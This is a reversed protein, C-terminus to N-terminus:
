PVGTSPPQCGLALGDDDGPYRLGYECAKLGTM